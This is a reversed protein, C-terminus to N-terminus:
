LDTDGQFGLSWVVGGWAAQLEAKCKELSFEYVAARPPVGSPIPGRRLLTDVALHAILKPKLQRLSKTLTPDGQRLEILRTEVDQARLKQRAGLM